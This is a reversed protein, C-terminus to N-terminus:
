IISKDNINKGGSITRNQAVVSRKITSGVGITVGEWLISNEILAGSEITCNPGIVSHPGIKSDEAIHCNPGVAAPPLIFPSNSEYSPAGKLVVKRDLADANVQLYSERNGMDKWYGGYLYGYIPIGDQVMQPFIDETTGCFQDVPIREFIEPEMIQIGTFMVRKTNNPVNMSSAGIFHVIRGDECIEISDYQEPSIDQRVM